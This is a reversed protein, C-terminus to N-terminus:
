HALAAFEVHNLIDIWQMIGADFRAGVLTDPSDHEQEPLRQEADVVGVALDALRDHAPM